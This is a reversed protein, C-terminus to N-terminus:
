AVEAHTHCCEPCRKAMEYGEVYQPDGPQVPVFRTDKCRACRPEAMSWEPEPDAPRLRLSVEWVQGPVPAYPNCERMLQDGIEQAHQPDKATQQFARVLEEQGEVSAPFSPHNEFRLVQALAIDRRIRATQIM